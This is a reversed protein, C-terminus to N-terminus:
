DLQVTAGISELTKKLKEIEDKTGNEKLVKPLSEVFKKAEVLNMNPMITKVEKIVKAKQTADIKTLTLNFTTKEKPKEPETSTSTQSETSKSETVSTSIPAAIETINLRTKLADVLESAEILTLQSISKVIDEIKSSYEVNPKVKLEVESQQSIPAQTAYSRLSLFESRSQSSILKSTQTLNTKRLSSRFSNLM